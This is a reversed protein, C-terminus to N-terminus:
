ITEFVIEAQTAARVDNFVAAVEYLFDSMDGPANEVVVQFPPGVQNIDGDGLSEELADLNRGHWAPAGLQPFLASYFDDPSRWGSGDLRIVNM